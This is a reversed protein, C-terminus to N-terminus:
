DLHINKWRLILLETAIVLVMIDLVLLVDIIDRIITNNMFDGKDYTHVFLNIRILKQVRIILDNFFYGM